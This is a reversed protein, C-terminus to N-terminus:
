LIINLVRLGLISLSIISILSLISISSSSFLSSTSSACSMVDSHGVPRESRNKTRMSHGAGPMSFTM